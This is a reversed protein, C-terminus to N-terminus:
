GNGRHLRAIEGIFICCAIITLRAEEVSVEDHVGKCTKEYVADLRSALHEIENDLIARSGESKFHSEACALLRNKYNEPGVARKKGSGDVWGNTSPPFVADAVSMLLRRCSTLAEARAEAQGEAMRESIALLQEAAKPCHSRVFTDVDQRLQDFISEAVDGFQLAIAVDTVYGHVASKLLVLMGLNALHIEALDAKEEVWRATIACAKELAPLGMLSIKTSDVRGGAEAYKLCTGFPIADGDEPYGRTEYGLWTQADSDRLLRALRVAGFLTHEIPPSAGREMDSLLEKALKRAEELRSRATGENAEDKQAM